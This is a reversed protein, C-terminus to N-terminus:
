GVEILLDNRRNSKKRARIRKGRAKKDLVSLEADSPVSYSSMASCPRSVRDANTLSLTPEFEFIDQILENEQFHIHLGEALVDRFAKLQAVKAWSSFHITQKKIKIKEEIHDGEEVTRLIDRFASRQVKRQSKARHRNSDKALASLLEILHEKDDYEVEDIEEYREPHQLQEWEESADRKRGIGLIEFMLAINEGSAVRVEMTDSKLHKLHIPMLRDFEKKAKDTGKQSGWLGAYLLGYSNLADAIVMGNNIANVSKGDTHFINAFFDLLEIADAASGAIFCAMGLTKVELSATNIINYKFLTLIEQYLSEQGDGLTIFFLSMVKAALKNENYSKDKKISRMLLTFITDRRSDLLDAVYKQSLLRILKTLGAERTRKEELEDISEFLETERNVSEGIANEQSQFSNWSDASDGSTESWVEDEDSNYRSSSPTENKILSLPQPNSSNRRSARVAAKKRLSQTM